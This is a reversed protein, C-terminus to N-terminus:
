VVKRQRCRIMWRYVGNWGHRHRDPVTPIRKQTRAPRTRGNREVHRRPPLGTSRNVRLALTWRRRHPRLRATDGAIPPSVSPLWAVLYLGYAKPVHAQDGGGSSGVPRPPSIRLEDHTKARSEKHTATRHHVRLDHERSAVADMLLSPRVLHPDIRAPVTFPFALQGFVVPNRLGRKKRETAPHVSRPLWSYSRASIPNPLATPVSVPHGFRAHAPVQEPLM